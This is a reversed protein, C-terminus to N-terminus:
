EDVVDLDLSNIDSELATVIKSQGYEFVKDVINGAQRYILPPLSCNDEPRPKNYEIKVKRFNWRVIFPGTSVVLDEEIVLGTPDSFPGNDFRGGEFNVETIGYKKKIDEPIRLILSDPRASGMSKHFGSVKDGSKADVFKTNVVALYEKTTWVVWDGDSSVDVARVRDALQNLNTKARKFSKDSPSQFLRVVGENDGVVMDGSSTTAISTFAHTRGQKTFKQDEGLVIQDMPTRTDWELNFISNRSTGALKVMEGQAQLQAFKKVPVIQDFPEEVEAHFSLELEGLNKGTETDLRVLVNRKQPTLMLLNRNKGHLMVKSPTIPTKDRFLPIYGPTSSAGSHFDLQSGRAAVVKNDSTIDIASYTDDYEKVVSM